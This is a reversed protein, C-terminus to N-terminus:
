RGEVWDKIMELRGTWCGDVERFREIPDPRDKGLTFFRSHSPVLQSLFHSIRTFSDM